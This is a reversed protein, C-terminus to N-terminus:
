GHTMVHGPHVPRDTKTVGLDTAVSIRDLSVAVVISVDSGFMWSDMLWKM